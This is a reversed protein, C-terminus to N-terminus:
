VWGGRAPRGPCPKACIAPAAPRRAPPDQRACARAASFRRPAPASGDREVGIGGHDHGIPQDQRFWNEVGRAVAGEIEVGRQQRAPSAGRGDIAGDHGAVPLAADRDHAEVSPRSVPGTQRSPRTAMPGRCSPRRAAHRARRWSPASASPSPARRAQARAARNGDALRRPRWRRALLDIRALRADVPAAPARAHMVHDAAERRIGAGPELDIDVALALPDLRKTRRKAFTEPAGPVTSSSWKVMAQPSPATRRVSTWRAPLFGIVPSSNRRPTCSRAPVASPQGGHGAVLENEFIVARGEDAPLHLLVAGRHLAAERLGDLGEGALVRHRAPRPAGIGAHMRQALDRM